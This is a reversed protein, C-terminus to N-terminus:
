AAGCITHWPLGADFRAFDRRMRKVEFRRKLASSSDNLVVTPAPRNWCSGPTESQFRGRSSSAREEEIIEGRERM